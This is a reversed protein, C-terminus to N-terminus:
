FNTRKLYSLLIGALPIVLPNITVINRIGARLVMM